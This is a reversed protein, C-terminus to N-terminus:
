QVGPDCSVFINREYETIGIVICKSIASLYGVQDVRIAVVIVVSTQVALIVHHHVVEPVLVPYTQKAQSVHTHNHAALVPL